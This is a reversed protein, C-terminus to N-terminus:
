SNNQMKGWAVDLAEIVKDIEELDREFRSKSLEKTKRKEDALAEELRSRESRESIWHELDVRHRSEVQAAYRELNAISAQASELQRKLSVLVAIPINVM